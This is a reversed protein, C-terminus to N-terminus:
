SSKACDRLAQIVESATRGPADNWRDIRDGVFNRLRDHAGLWEAGMEKGARSIALMACVNRGNPAHPAPLLWLSRWLVRLPSEPQPAQTWWGDREIRDAARLLVDRWPEVVVDAEVKFDTGDFPAM